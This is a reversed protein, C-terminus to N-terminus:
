IFLFSGIIRIFMLLRFLVPNSVEEYDPLEFFSEATYRGYEEEHNFVSIFLSM